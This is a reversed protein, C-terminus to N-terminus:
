TKRKAKLPEHLQPERIDTLLENWKVKENSSCRSSKARQRAIRSVEHPTFTRGKGPGPAREVPPDANDCAERITTEGVGVHDALGGVTLPCPPHVIVPNDDFDANGNSADGDTVTPTAALPASPIAYDNLRNINYGLDHRAKVWAAVREPTDQGHQPGTNGPYEPSDVLGILANMATRLEALIPHVHDRVGKLETMIDPLACADRCQDLLKISARNHFLTLWDNKWTGDHLRDVCDRATCLMWILDSVSACRLPPRDSLLHDVLQSTALFVDPKLISYCPLSGNPKLPDAKRKKQGDSDWTFTEVDDILLLGQWALHHIATLLKYVPTSDDLSPLSIHLADLLEIIGPTVEGFEDTPDGYFHHEMQACGNNPVGHWAFHHSGAPKWHGDPPPLRVAPGHPDDGASAPVVVLMHYFGPCPLGKLRLMKGSNRRLEFSWQRLVEYGWADKTCPLSM